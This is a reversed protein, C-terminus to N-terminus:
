TQLRRSEKFITKFVAATSDPPLGLTEADKLVRDLMAKERAKDRVPLKLAKKAEAIKLVLARRKALLILLQHNIDDIQRRLEHM